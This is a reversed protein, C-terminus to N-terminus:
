SREEAAAFASEIAARCPDGHVIAILLARARTCAVYLDERRFLRGFDHMDYLIVVDAELGKFSRATTVLVGKGDRWEEASTVLPIGFLKDIDSLSGNAKAAPGLLAIQRPAVDENQLLRGLEKIFLGKGEKRTCAGIVRPHAGTPARIYSKADLKLVAASAAAIKRTNRCNFTLPFRVDFELPPWQVEGRLSQNPDIFVYTPASPHQLLSRSLAHWWGLLFDQAEDVVLADYRIDISQSELTLVAQELLDPVEDNWFYENRLGGRAPQFEIGATGALDSALAHFHKVTILHRFEAVTPDEDVQRQTWTALERNYCVFLTRKGSRAFSLARQLALITKGSGAVGNVLVRDHAHLGELVQAQGETLELLTNVALAIDPGVRRLVRFRPMLCDQLLMQHQEPRLVRPEEAWRAYAAFVVQQMVSIHKRSVIIANDAHPPPEGEYDVHPFAVAYGWTFDSKKIRGGSRGEIIKLLAHMNRSAQLFPDQFKRRDAGTERSWEHGDYSISAGGKVELVLVGLEPHLLVFDAEGEVLGGEDRSPRLWPYSHLVVFDDGLQDRLARYVPEESTHELQEPDVDPIMRAM